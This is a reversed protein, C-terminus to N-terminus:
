RFNKRKDVAQDSNEQVYDSIVAFVEDSVIHEMRCADQDAIEAPVGLLEWFRAITTHKAYVDQALREGQETLRLHMGEMTLFGDQILIRVAKTVTPKTVGMRRAVEVSHVDKRERSLLLITELYDEGSAHIAM